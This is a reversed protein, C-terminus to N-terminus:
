FEARLHATKREEHTLDFTQSQGDALESLYFVIDFSITRFGLVAIRENALTMAGWFIYLLM